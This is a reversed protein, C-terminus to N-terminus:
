TDKIKAIRSLHHDDHEAVFLFLDMTRMPKELRPHLAMKYIDEESLESLKELTMKRIQEFNALLENIDKSNHQAFDTQKNDLDTPRLYREHNLIDELRGQWLPELDILHGINEKISWKNDPKSELLDLAVEKVASTLRMPIGKMREIISPFINQDFSFDFKRDFWKIQEM